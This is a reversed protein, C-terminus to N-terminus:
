HNGETASFPASQPTSMVFFNIRVSSPIGLRIYQVATELSFAAASGGPQDNNITNEGLQVPENIDAVTGEPLTTTNANWSDHIYNTLFGLALQRMKSNEPIAYPDNWVDIIGIRKLRPVIVVLDFTNFTKNRVEIRMKEYPYSEWARVIDANFDEPYLHYGQNHEADFPATATCNEDGTSVCGDIHKEINAVVEYCKGDYCDVSGNIVTPDMTVTFVYEDYIDGLFESMNSFVRNADIKVSYGGNEAAEANGTGVAFEAPLISINGNNNIITPDFPSYISLTDYKDPQGGSTNTDTGLIHWRWYFWNSGENGLYSSVSTPFGDWGLNALQNINGEWVLHSPTNEESWLHALYYTIIAPVNFDSAGQVTNSYEYEAYIVSDGGVFDLYKTDASPYNTLPHVRTYGFVSSWDKKTIMNRLYGLYRDEIPYTPNEPDQGSIGSSRSRDGSFVFGDINNSFVKNRCNICNIVGGINLPWPRYYAIDTSGTNGAVFSDFDEINFYARPYKEQQWPYSWNSASNPLQRGEARSIEWRLSAYMIGPTQESLTIADNIHTNLASNTDLLQESLQREAAYYGLGFATIANPILTKPITQMCSNSAAWADSIDTGCPAADEYFGDESTYNIWTGWPNFVVVQNVLNSFDANIWNTGDHYLFDGMSPNTFDINSLNDVAIFGGLTSPSMGMFGGQGDWALVHNINVQSLNFNITETTPPTFTIYPHGGENENAVQIYTNSEFEKEQILFLLQHLSANIDTASLKAGETFTLLMKRDDTCRSLVLKVYGSMDILPTIVALEENIAFQAPHELKTKVGAADVAYVCLQLIDPIECLTAVSGYSYNTGMVPNEYEIIVSAGLASANYYIPDNTNYDYCVIEEGESQSCDPNFPNPCPEQEECGFWIPILTGNCNYCNSSSASCTTDGPPSSCSHYVDGTQCCNVCQPANPNHNCFECSLCYETPMPYGYPSCDDPNCELCCLEQPVWVDGCLVCDDEGPVCVVAPCEESTPDILSCGAANVCPVFDRCDPIDGGGGCPSCLADPDDCPVVDGTATFCYGADNPCTTGFNGCLITCCPMGEEDCACLEDILGPVNNCPFTVQGQGYMSEIIGVAINCGELDTCPIGCLCVEPAIPICGDSAGSKNVVNCLINWAVDLATGCTSSQANLLFDCITCNSSGGLELIPEPISLNSYSPSAGYYSNWQPKTSKVKEFAYKIWLHNTFWRQSPSRIWDAM